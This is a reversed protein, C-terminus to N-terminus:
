HKVLLRKTAVVGKSKDYITVLYIGNAWAATSIRVSREVIAPLELMNKGSLSVVRILCNASVEENVEVVCERDAPNPYVRFPLSVHIPSIDTHIYSFPMCELLGWEGVQNRGRVCLMHEGESLQDVAVEFTFDDVSPGPSHVPVKMGKGEGPDDDFFYEIEVIDPFGVKLFSYASTHGWSDFSDKARFHILHFGDTIGHLNATFSYTDDTDSQDLRIASGLGPDNDIFYEVRGIRVPDAKKNVKLFPYDKTHGWHKKSDLARVYLIHLGDALGKLDITFSRDTYDGSEALTLGKGYGPDRDFFYEVRSIKVPDDPTPALLAQPINGYSVSALGLGCVFLLCIMYKKLFM